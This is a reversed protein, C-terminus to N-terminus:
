RKLQWASPSEADLADVPAYVVEVWELPSEPNKPDSRKQVYRRSAFPLAHLTVAAKDVQQEAIRDVTMLNGFVEIESWVISCLQVKYPRDRQFEDASTRVAAEWVARKHEEAAKAFAAAGTIAQAFSQAM